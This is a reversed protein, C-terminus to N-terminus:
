LRLMSAFGSSSSITTSVPPTRQKTSVKLAWCRLPVVISKRLLKWSDPNANSFGLAVPPQPQPDDKVTQATPGENPLALGRVARAKQQGGTASRAGSTATM